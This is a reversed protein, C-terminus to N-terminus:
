LADDYFGDDEEVYEDDIPEYKLEQDEAYGSNDPEPNKDAPKPKSKDKGMRQRGSATAPSPKSKAMRKAAAANGQDINKDAFPRMFPADRSAPPSDDADDGKDSAAIPATPKVFPRSFPTFRARERGTHGAADLTEGPKVGPRQGQKPEANSFLAMDFAPKAEQRAAPSDMRSPIVAPPMSATRKDKERVAPERKSGPADLVTVVSRSIPEQGPAGPIPLKLMYISTAAADKRAPASRASQRQRREAAKRAIAQQRTMAIMRGDQFAASHGTLGEIVAEVTGLVIVMLVNILTTLSLIVTLSNLLQRITEGTEAAFTQGIGLVLAIIIIPLAAAGIQRWGRLKVPTTPFMTNAITFAVYFWLWFDAQATLASVARAVDDLQGPAAISLVTELAFANMAIVWLALLGAVLPAAAIVARKILHAGPALKIFNLELKDIEQKQPLKIVRSARANLAGTALWRVAEHLLAGPLFVIYYLITTIQHNRTLLWGVKFIHQHLWREASRFLFFLVGVLMAAGLVEFEGLNM